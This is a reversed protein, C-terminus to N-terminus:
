PKKTLRKMVDEVYPQAKAEAADACMKLYRDALKALDLLDAEAAKRELESGNRIWKILLPVQPEYKPVFNAM